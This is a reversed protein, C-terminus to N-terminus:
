RRKKAAPLNEDGDANNTLLDLDENLNLEVAKIDPNVGVEEEKKVIPLQKLVETNTPEDPKEPTNTSQENKAPNNDTQNDDNVPNNNMPEDKVM